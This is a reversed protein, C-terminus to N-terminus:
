RGCNYAPRWCHVYGLDRCKEGLINLQECIGGGGECVDVVCAKYLEEVDLRPDKLCDKFLGTPDRLKECQDAAGCPPGETPLATPRTISQCRPSILM